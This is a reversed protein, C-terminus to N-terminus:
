TARNDIPLNAGVELLARPHLILGYCDKHHLLSDLSPKFNGFNAQIRNFCFHLIESCQHLYDSTRLKQDSYFESNGLFHVKQHHLLRENQKRRNQVGQLYFFFKFEIYIITKYIPTVSQRQNVLVLFCLSDILLLYYTNEEIIM